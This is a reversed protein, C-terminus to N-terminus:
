VCRSTYLLCDETKDDLDKQSIIITTGTSNTKDAKTLTFNNTTLKHKINNITNNQKNKNKIHHNQNNYKIIEVSAETRIRDRICM